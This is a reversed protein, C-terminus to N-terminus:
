ERVSRWTSQVDDTLTRCFQLQVSDWCISYMGHMSPSHQDLDDSSLTESMHMLCTQLLELLM